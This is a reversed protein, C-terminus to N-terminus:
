RACLGTMTFGFGLTVGRGDRVGEGGCVYFARAIYDEKTDYSDLCSESSNNREFLFTGNIAM